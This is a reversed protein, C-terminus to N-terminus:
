NYICFVTFLFYLFRQVITTKNLITVNILNIYKSKKSHLIDNKNRSYYLVTNCLTLADYFFIVKFNVRKHPWFLQFYM